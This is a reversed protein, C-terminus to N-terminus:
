QLVGGYTIDGCRFTEFLNRFRFKIMHTYVKSATMIECLIGSELARYFSIVRKVKATYYRADIFSYACQLRQREQHGYNAFELMNQLIDIKNDNAILSEHSVILIDHRIHSFVEEILRIQGFDDLWNKDFNEASYYMCKVIASTREYHSPHLEANPDVQYGLLSSCNEFIAMLPDKVLIIGRNFGRLMGRMCKKKGWSNM